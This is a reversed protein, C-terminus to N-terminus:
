IIKYIPSDYIKYYQETSYEGGFKKQMYKNPAEPIHQPFHGNWLKYLYYLNNKKEIFKTLDKTTERIYSIACGWRCCIGEAEIKFTTDSKGMILHDNKANIYLNHVNPEIVQPIFIPRGNFQNTCYWCLLNTSTPWTDLNEYVRPHKNYEKQQTCTTLDMLRTTNLNSINKIDVYKKSDTRNLLKTDINDDIHICDDIFINRIFLIKPTRKTPTTIM